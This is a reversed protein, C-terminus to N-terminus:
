QGVFLYSHYINVSPGTSTFQSLYFNRGTCNGAPFLRMDALTGDQVITVGSPIFQHCSSNGPNSVQEVVTGNTATVVGQPPDSCGALAVVLVAGGVLVALSRSRSM